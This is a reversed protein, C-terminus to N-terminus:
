FRAHHMCAPQEARFSAAQMDVYVKSAFLMDQLRGSAAPTLSSQRAPPDEGEFNLSRSVDKGGLTIHKLREQGRELIKRRRAETGSERATAAM